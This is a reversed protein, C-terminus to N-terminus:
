DESGRALIRAALVHKCPGRSRGHELYWLCGCQDPDIHVEYRTPSSTVLYQTTSREVVQGQEVLRRAAVLRPNDRDVRNPDDPLERHFYSSTAVDWGVRGSVALVALGERVASEDLKSERALRGVDIVPEFALLASVLDANELVDPAALAELLAGEGSHGRWPEPTLGLVLRAAPLEFEVVAPGPETDEPGYFTISQVHVLLRKAASLRHLGAIYVAGEQPRAAVKVGAPGATLWGNRAGASPPPITALFRQAASGKATVSRIMKQHMQVANGLARMWRDPMDVKRERLTQDPSSVTLGDAGVDLHLLQNKTVKTLMARMDAGLDVNTTGRAIDGGDFGDGLLDLRAYVGNCASFCEARLRDGHASLIPDRLSTPTYKFYRTATVDALTVLGRALVQPQTAFGHFFSPSSDLGNPTLAPSLALGLGRETVRSAGLFTDVTM